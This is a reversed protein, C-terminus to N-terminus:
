RTLVVHDEMLWNACIISALKKHRSSHMAVYGTASKPCQKSTHIVLKVLKAYDLAFNGNTSVQQMVTTSTHVQVHKVMIELRTACTCYQPFQLSHLPAVLLRFSFQDSPRLHIEEGGTAAQFLCADEAATRDARAALRSAVCHATVQEGRTAQDWAASSTNDVNVREDDENHITQAVNFRHLGIHHCFHLCWKAQSELARRCHVCICHHCLLLRFLHVLSSTVTRSSQTPPNHSMNKCSRCVSCIPVPLARQHQSSEEANDMELM